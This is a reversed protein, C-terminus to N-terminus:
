RVHANACPMDGVSMRREAIFAPGILFSSPIQDVAFVPRLIRAVRLGSEVLRRPVRHFM